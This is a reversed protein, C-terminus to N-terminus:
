RYRAELLELYRPNIAMPAYRRSDLGRDILLDIIGYYDVGLNREYAWLGYYIASEGQFDTWVVVAGKEILPEVLARNGLYVAIMLATRGQQDRRNLAAGQQLLWNLAQSQQFIVAHYLATFELSEGRDLDAGGDFLLQMM